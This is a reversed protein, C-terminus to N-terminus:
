IRSVFCVLPIEEGDRRKQVFLADADTELRQRGHHSTETDRGRWNHTERLTIALTAYRQNWREFQKSLQTINLKSLTM